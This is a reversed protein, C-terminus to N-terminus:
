GSPAAVALLSRRWRCSACSLDRRPSGAGMGRGPEWTGGEARAPASRVAEEGSFVRKRSGAGRSQGGERSRGM